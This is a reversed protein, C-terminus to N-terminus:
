KYSAVYERLAKNLQTQWGRGKGKFFDLVDQSLRLTTQVKTPTKQPGRGKINLRGERYAKVIKPVVESAPRMRKLDEDTLEPNDFDLAIGRDIELTEKKAPALVKHKRM